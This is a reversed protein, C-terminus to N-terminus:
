CRRRCGAVPAQLRELLDLAAVDKGRQAVSAPPDVTRVASSAGEIEVRARQAAPHLFEANAAARIRELREGAADGGFVVVGPTGRRGHRKAVTLPVNHVLRRGPARQESRMWPM